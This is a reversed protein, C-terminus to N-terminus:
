SILTSHIPIKISSVVVIEDCISKSINGHVVSPNDLIPYKWLEKGAYNLCVLSNENPSNILIEYLGDANTDLISLINSTNEYSWKKYFVLDVDVATLFSSSWYTFVLLLIM